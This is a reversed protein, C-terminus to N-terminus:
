CQREEEAGAIVRPSLDARLSRNTTGTEMDPSRREEDMCRVLTNTQYYLDNRRDREELRKMWICFLKCAEEHYGQPLM